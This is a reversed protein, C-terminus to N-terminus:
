SNEIRDITEEIWDVYNEVKTYYGKYQRQDCPAGWSVIGNLYYPGRGEALMPFVLPGGSDKQCSDKGVAGACFMNNTFIMRKKSETSPTNQCQSLSYVGINVHKLMRSTAFFDAKRETIGFGSVTGQENELLDRKVKPLCIPLLNPGLNVRSAFRILAIDNDFNIRDEVGKVYGPHIIIRESDMVVVNSLRDSTTRGDILGGYLRLATEGATEVVHAATVAWRDNILSAGGRLPAKILLHWPIEGLNANKGGLIRGSSAPHKEPMGCVEICKPMETKGGDSVWEGNANCTYTDEGELTYYKSSCNFQIQDKYQTHPNDSGVWQLIGDEPIGPPGCDVPECAYNPAWVGTSLCTAEYQSSLAQTGQTDVVYGLDCTVTVTQGQPYEPQQPTVTSKPTVVTPCVQDRTKFHLTFGKNTGFGDSTFRIQVHSSHTLFPSTPPTNGCFPGLTGSPTEIRLADICQGDPSQEVDFDESFHLELQLHAEVSLTHQCNANEAYSAPWSPSSIDGKNLGSLDDSCSVTCTHKDPDLYYGHHCSCHYGGIYNHCFQTCGNDPDEECEDFDQSTYFGRFGTHRKTNSFDSHFSLSLCGGPSSLLLPNVTSQLEEFERKGCLVSILNGNSFVKVADNECDQSDELDLHILRLSLTHGKPACRSWNLSAHPLYGSPYGPSEVWGLLMSCASHSLLLLLLSLRLM